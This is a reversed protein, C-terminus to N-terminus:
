QNLNRKHAAKMEARMAKERRMAVKVYASGFMIIATVLLLGMGVLLAGMPNHLNDFGAHEMLPSSVQM